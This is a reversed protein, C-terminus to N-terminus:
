AKIPCMWVGSYSNKGSWVCGGSNYVKPTKASSSTLTLLLIGMTVIVFPNFGSAAIASVGKAFMAQTIASGGVFIWVENALIGAVAGAIMLKVEKGISFPSLVPSRYSDYKDNQSGDIILFDSSTDSYYEEETVFRIKREVGNETVYGFDETTSVKNESASVPAIGAVFIFTVFLFVAFKKFM